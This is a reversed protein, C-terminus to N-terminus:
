HEKPYDRQTEIELYEKPKFYVAIDWESIQRELNKSRSGFLFALIVSPVKEFYNTLTQIKVEKEEM